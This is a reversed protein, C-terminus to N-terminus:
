PRTAPPARPGGDLDNPTVFHRSFSSSSQHHGLETLIQHLAGSVKSLVFLCRMPSLVAFSCSGAHMAVRYSAACPGVHYPLLRDLADEVNRFPTQVDPCCVKHMDETIYDSQRSKCDTEALTGDDAEQESALGQTNTQESCCPLAVNDAQCLRQSVM